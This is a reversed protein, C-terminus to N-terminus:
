GSLNALQQVADSNVLLTLKHFVRHYSKPRFLAWDGAVDADLGRCPGEGPYTKFSHLNPLPPPFNSNHVLQLLTSALSCTNIHSSHPENM